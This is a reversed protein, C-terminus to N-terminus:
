RGKEAALLLKVRRRIEESEAPSFERQNAQALYEKIERYLLLLEGFRAFRKQFDALEKACKPCAQAHKLMEDKKDTKLLVEIKDFQKCTM